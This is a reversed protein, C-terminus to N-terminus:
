PPLISGPPDQHVDFNEVLDVNEIRHNQYVMINVRKIPFTIYIWRWKNIVLMM